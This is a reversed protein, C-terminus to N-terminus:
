LENFVKLFIYQEVNVRRCRITKYNQKEMFKILPKPIRPNYREILMANKWDEISDYSSRVDLTIYSLPVQGREWIAMGNKVRWVQYVDDQEFILYKQKNPNGMVMNM